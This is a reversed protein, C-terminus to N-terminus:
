EAQIWDLIQESAPEISSPFFAEVEGDRGILFKCFNWDVDCPISKRQASAYLVSYLEHPHNVIDLKETLPFKVGFNVECFTEIEPATGPEQGGFDNCPCGLLHIIGGFQTYLDQLGKYQATYGCESAVNVILSKKGNWTSLDLESGNLLKVKLSYINKEM